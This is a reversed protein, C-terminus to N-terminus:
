EALLKMKQLYQNEIDMTKNLRPVIRELLHLNLVISSQYLIM